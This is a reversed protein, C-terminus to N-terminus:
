GLKGRSFERIRFFREEENKKKLAKKQNSENKVPAKATKVTDQTNTKEKKEVVPVTGAPVEKEVPAPKEKYLNKFEQHKMKKNYDVVGYISAGAMLLGAAILFTKM